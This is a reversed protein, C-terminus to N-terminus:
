LSLYNDDPLSFPFSRFKLVLNVDVDILGLFLSNKNEM